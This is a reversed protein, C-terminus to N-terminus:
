CIPNSFALIVYGTISKRDEYDNAYDADAWGTFAEKNSQQKYVLCKDKTGKVYRLLHKLANWHSQNPKTSYRLIQNVTFLVDPRTYHALYNLSGIAQQFHTVEIVDDMPGRGIKNLFNGNCPTKVSKCDEMEFQRLLKVILDTQNIKLENKCWISNYGLHQTPRKKYKLKLTNNLENLFIIIDNESKRIVFGDDVHVHLLLTKDRNVFLSKDSQASALGLKNLTATLKEKWM